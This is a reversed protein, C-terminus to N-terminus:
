LFRRLRSMECSEFFPMKAYIKSMSLAFNTRDVEPKPIAGKLPTFNGFRDFYYAVHLHTKNQRPGVSSHHCTSSIEGHSCCILAHKQQKYADYANWDSLRQFETWCFFYRFDDFILPVWVM